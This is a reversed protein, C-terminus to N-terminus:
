VWAGLGSRELARVRRRGGGGGDRAGQLMRGGSGWAMAYPGSIGERWGGAAAGEGRSRMSENARRGGRVRGRV